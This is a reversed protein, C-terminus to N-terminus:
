RSDAVAAHGAADRELRDVVGTPESRREDDDEVVVAHRDRRVDACERAVEVAHAEVRAEPLRALADLVRQRAEGDADAGRELPEARLELLRDLREPRGPEEPLLQVPGVRAHDVAVVDARDALRY